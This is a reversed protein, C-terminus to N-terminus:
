IDELVITNIEGGDDMYWYGEEYSGDISFGQKRADEHSIRNDAEAQELLYEFGARSHDVLIQRGKRSTYIFFRM